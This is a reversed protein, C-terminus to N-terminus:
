PFFFRLGMWSYYYGLRRFAYYEAGYELTGSTSYVYRLGYKLYERATRTYFRFAGMKNIQSLHGTEHHLLYRDYDTNGTLKTVVNRGLTVGAGRPTFISGRRYVQGFDELECYTESDPMFTPGMTAIRFGALGGGAAAGFAAGQWLYSADQTMAAIMSGGAFGQAGGKLVSHGIEYVANKFGSGPVGSFDGIAAGVGGSLAGSFSGIVAGQVMGGMIDNFSGGALATMGAGNIAGSVMGGMMGGAIGAEFTTAGGAMASAGVSLGVSAGAWGALGGVVIGGYTKANYWDWKIPNFNGDNAASGGLYAGVIIAAILIPNEGDPDTYVLPNNLAYAYRNFSQTFDPLQVFNDPALMRGLIPDYMRGNMNILGFQDLHEHGTYGRNFLYSTPVNNYTWNTPNRRRGWADFSYNQVVTGSQNTIADYSGLHDTHVYYMTGTGNNIEYIAALGDGGAIYHLQRTNSGSVEKEYNDFYYITKQLVENQYLKSATRQRDHGYSFQMRLNGETIRDTKNFQTYTINQDVTPILGQPNTVQTVAHPQSGYSYNGAGTKSTINGSANFSMTLPGPGSAGTLRNLNDYTFSESLSRLNDTRSLLNGTIPDFNYSLNQVTATTISQLIGFSSYGTSTSRSNGYQCGTYQGFANMANGQWIMAGNDTRKVQSFYGYTNYVNTVAFNSPYTLSTIRSQVDYGYSTTYAAGDITKSRGNLRGYSDYTFSESGGPYTVLRLLGPNGSPDYAYTTSGEPGNRTTIRGLLDYGMTYTNNRADTQSTIEGFGNYQYTTTGANPDTLGTQRGYSDYTMSWSAGNTTISGPKGVSKYTYTISGGNDIASVLNGQDDVTGSGTQEGKITQTTKGSYVYMVIDTPGADVGPRGFDDYTFERAYAQSGLYYPYSQQVMLGRTNYVRSTYVATGNFGPKETRLLRGFIDYYEKVWPLGTSSTLVYYVSNQPRSGTAWQYATTITQGTPYVTNTLRGFNDYTYSTVKGNPATETLVNGTANDFTRQILHNLPNYIKTAFRGKTDYEFRTVRSSTGDSLTVQSVTGDGNYQYSATLPGTAETLVLGTASQYTYTTALSFSSADQYHKRIVTVNQPRAPLWSGASSYNSYTVTNYSGDNYTDSMATPNGYNDVSLSSTKTISTRYDTQVSQSVYPFIRQNGYSIFSNTNSTYSILSVQDATSESRYQLYVNYYTSNYGYSDSTRVNNVDNVATINQFGLFGKGQRHIRAAQYTYDTQSISSNINDSWTSSVVYLPGQFDMVPYSASSGKTYITSLYNTLPRYYFGTSVGLGNRISAVFDQNRGRYITYMKGISGNNYYYDINGEGNFDGLTNYDPSVALTTPPTYMQLSFDQGNSFAVYIRVPNSISTGRGVAALDSKGDGNIDRAYFNNYYVYPNFGNFITNTTQVFGTGTSTSVKWINNVDFSFIDTKGDGNFDGFLNVHNITPYSLSCILTLDSSELEYFRSGNTDLVMLDTKGNGTMDLLVEKIECYTDGSAWTITATAINSYSSYSTGSFSFEYIKCNSSGGIIKVLMDEKGNGNFDGVLIEASTSFYPSSLNTTTFGTGTAMLLSPRYYGSESRVVLLDDKGDGNLDGRRVLQFNSPMSSSSYLTFSNSTNAYYLYWTSSKIIVMDTKGDGNFDGYIRGTVQSDSISATESLGFNATGWTIVTSNLRTNNKGYEVIETLRSTTTNYLFEYRGVTAGESEVYINKLLHGLTVKSGAIYTVVPVTRTQYEFEITNFPSFGTTGTYNITLPYFEGTSNNEYWTITVYNGNKDVIKNLNWVLAQSRGQAEIRSDATNGYYLTKGDKTEVKFYTPDGGGVLGSGLIKSFTEIETRYEMNLPSIQILRQGDLTFRDSNNFQINNIFGEHYWDCAARTIASLGTIGWGLGLIGEGAQSNYSVTLNPEMGAVGPCVKIPITYTAAGTPSVGQAGATTGVPYSTNIPLGASTTPETFTYSGGGSLVIRAQFNSGSQQTYKFGPSLTIKQTAEYRRNGSITENLNITESQAQLAESLFCLCITLIYSPMFWIHLNTHLKM